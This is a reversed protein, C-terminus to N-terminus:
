VANTTFFRVMWPEWDCLEDEIEEIVKPEQSANKKTKKVDIISIMKKLYQEVEAVEYKPPAKISHERVAFRRDLVRKMPPTIGSHYYSPFSDNRYHPSNEEEDMEKENEYVILMQGLDVSKYYKQHDVTRHLEIPLPLNTLRCPYRQSDCTFWWLTSNDSSPVINVGPLDVIVDLSSGVTSNSPSPSTISKNPTPRTAGTSTEKMKRRLTSELKESKVRLILVRDKIRESM